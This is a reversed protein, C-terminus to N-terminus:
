TFDILRFSGLLLHKVGPSQDAGFIIYDNGVNVQCRLRPGKASRVISLPIATARWPIENMERDFATGMEIRIVEGNAIKEELIARQNDIDNMPKEMTEHFVGRRRM